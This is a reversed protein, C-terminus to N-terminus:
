EFVINVTIPLNKKSCLQSSFLTKSLSPYPTLSSNFHQVDPVRNNGMFHAKFSYNVCFADKLSRNM